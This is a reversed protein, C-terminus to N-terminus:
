CIDEFCWFDKRVGKKSEASAEGLQPIGECKKLSSDDKSAAHIQVELNWRLPSWAAHKIRSQAEKFVVV